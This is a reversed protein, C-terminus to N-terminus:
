FIDQRNKEAIMEEFLSEAPAGYLVIKGDSVFSPVGYIGLKDALDIDDSVNQIFADSKLVNKALSVDLGVKKISLYLNEEESLDIGECFCAKMFAETLLENKDFSKAWHILRHTNLTNCNFSTNFNFDIGYEKGEKILPACMEDLQSDSFGKKDKLYQLSPVSTREPFKPDLQFSHWVIEVKEGLKMKRIVAELKKKALFCFPCVVDIWIDIRGKRAKIKKKNKINSM